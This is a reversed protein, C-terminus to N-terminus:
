ISPITAGAGARRNRAHAAMRQQFYVLVTNHAIEPHTVFWTHSRILTDELLNPATEHPRIAPHRRRLIDIGEMSVQVEERADFELPHLSIRMSNSARMGTHEVPIGGYFWEQRVQQRTSIAAIIGAVAAIGITAHRSSLGLLLPTAIAAAAGALISRWGFQRGAVHENDYVCPFWSRSHPNQYFITARELRPEFEGEEEPEPPNVPAPAPPVVAPAPPPPIIQFAHNINLVAALPAQVNPGGNHIPAPPNPEIHPVPLPAPPEVPPVPRQRGHLDINLVGNHIDVVVIDTTRIGVHMAPDLDPAALPIPRGLIRPFRLRSRCYPCNISHTNPTCFLKVLCLVCM